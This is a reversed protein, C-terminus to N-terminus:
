KIPSMGAGILSNYVYDYNFTYYSACVLLIGEIFISKKM